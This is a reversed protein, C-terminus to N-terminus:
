LSSVLKMLRIFVIGQEMADDLAKHTHVCEGALDKWLQTSQDRTMKKMTTYQTFYSSICEAKFALKVFPMEAVPPYFAFYYYNLWQWDYASPAAIWKKPQDAYLGIFSVLDRIFDYASVQNTALYNYADINQPLKFWQITDPDQQHGDLPLINREFTGLVNGDQDFVVLAFGLMSNTAPSPGDAEIDFSFYLM